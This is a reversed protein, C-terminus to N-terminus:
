DINRSCEECFGSMMYEYPVKRGCQPCIEYGASGTMCRDCLPEGDYTTGGKDSEKGIMRGCEYCYIIGSDEDPGDNGSDIEDYDSITDEDLDLTPFKDDRLLQFDTIEPNDEEDYSIVCDVVIEIHVKHTEIATVYKEFLYCHEERDYYSGEEDRHRIEAKVTAIVDIYATAGDDAVDAFVFEAEIDQISKDECEWEGYYGRNIDLEDLYALIEDNFMGDATADSILDQIVACKEEQKQQYNLFDGIREFTLFLDEGEFAKRFGSDNSVICIFYNASKAYQKIANIILADKFEYPKKDEFPPKRKFYDDMLVEADIPNLSICHAEDLNIFDEFEKRVQEIVKTSDLKSIGLDHDLLYVADKKLARNYARVADGIDEELHQLVEGRTASTYLLNVKGSKMLNVFSEFKQKDYVYKTAIYINTDLFVLM